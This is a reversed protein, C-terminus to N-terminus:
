RTLLGGNVFITQGTIWRARPSVLFEVVPVIDTVEGLGGTMQKIMAVSEPTEASYFFDTNLSGPAVTNVTIERASLEKGLTRSFHELPSKSSVYVSYFPISMGLISTGINVVRGGDSMQRAAEQMCLFPAKANVAFIRDYEEESIEAFPKKIIMGANNILVDFRGFREMLRELLRRVQKSDSLDAAVAEAEVGAARAMATTEAAEAQSKDGSHHVVVNAGHKALMLAFARGLNRTAGTVLAAKGRLFGNQTNM